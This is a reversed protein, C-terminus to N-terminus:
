SLTEANVKYTAAHVYDVLQNLKAFYKMFNVPKNKPFSFEFIATKTLNSTKMATVIFFATEPIHRRTSRTHVSTESSRIADM